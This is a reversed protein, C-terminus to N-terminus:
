CRVLLGAEGAGPYRAAYSRRGAWPESSWGRTTASDYNFLLEVPGGAGDARDLVRQVTTGGPHKYYAGSTSFLFRRTDVTALFAETVNAPSGHHPLKVLDVQLADSGAARAALGVVHALTDGHADGTLLVRAGDAELLLVTSTRNPLSSDTGPDGGLLDKSARLRRRGELESLARETDGPRWGSTQLATSWEKRLRRLDGLLPGLVTARAGGPLDLIRPPADDPVALPAECGTNWPIDSRSLLAGLFEGHETGLLDSRESLRQLQPWGNFWVDGISLALARRDRLLRIVGEIHDGDIHTVVLVDIRRPAPLQEIRARLAKYTSWPGGDVLMTTPARSGGWTLLLADGQAAPLAELTLTM